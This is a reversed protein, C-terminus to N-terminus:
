AFVELLNAPNAETIELSDLGHWATFQDLTQKLGVLLEDDLTMEPELYLAKVEMRKQKRHAKPDLRGVLRGKHLIPLCFFGYQRDKAPTYSELRYDFNFLDLARDRDSILPDFPSLLTTYTATLEGALAQKALALGDPHIYVPQDWAAVEARYLRGEATLRELRKAMGTKLLYYYNAVWEVRAAGLARVAMLALEDRVTELDQADADDWDPLVRERLDFYRRFNERRSVMLEGTIMLRDLAIRENKIGGWGTEIRESEFDMSSLPGNERVEELVRALLDQHKEAWGWWYRGVRKDHLGRGRFTPYYETPIYCLAHAYYEFLQGEAHVEDLWDPDFDGLRSWLVLNQSRQVVHITDIQLYGMQRIAPLLDTKVATTSPPTLLGQAALMVLRVAEPTMLMM